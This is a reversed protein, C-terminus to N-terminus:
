KFLGQRIVSCMTKVGHFGFSDTYEKNEVSFRDAIEKPAFKVGSKELLGRYGDHGEPWRLYHFRGERPCNTYSLRVDSPHCAQPIPPLNLERMAKLLKQSTLWFGNNGVVGDAWASGVYDYKLFEDTWAAPNMIWSDWQIGLQYETFLDAHKPLETMIWVNAWDAGRRLATDVDPAGSGYHEVKVFKISQRETNGFWDEYKDGFIVVGGGFFCKSLCRNIADVTGPVFVTAYAWLTVNPLKLM